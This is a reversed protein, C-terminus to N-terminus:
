KTYTNDAISVTLDPSNESSPNDVKSVYVQLKDGHEELRELLEAKSINGTFFIGNSGNRKWVGTISTRKSM